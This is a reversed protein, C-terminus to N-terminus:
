ALHLCCRDHTTPPDGGKVGRVFTRWEDATLRIAPGNPDKSDRVAHSGDPLWAVEVCNADPQSYSSKRWIM